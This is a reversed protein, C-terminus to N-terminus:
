TVEESGKASRILHAYQVHVMKGTAHTITCIAQVPGSVDFKARLAEWVLVNVSRKTASKVSAGRPSRVSGPRNQPVYHPDHDEDDREEPSSDPNHM